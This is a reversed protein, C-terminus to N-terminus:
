LRGTLQGDRCSWLEKGHIYFLVVVVVAGVEVIVGGLKGEGGVGQGNFKLIVTKSSKQCFQGPTQSAVM